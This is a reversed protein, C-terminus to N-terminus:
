RSRAAKTEECFMKYEAIALKWENWYKEEVHEQYLKRASDINAKLERKKQARAHCDHELHKEVHKTKYEEIHNDYYRLRARTQSINSRLKHAGEADHDKKAQEYALTYGELKQEYFSRPKSLNCKIESKHWNDRDKALNEAPTLLQLNSLDYDELTDHRNNIHDVVMGEPVEGYHWAWMLRHLGLSRLKYTYGFASSKKAIKIRKGNEDADYVDHVFYGSNNVNPIEEYEGKFVHGDTTVETIGNEMLEEKTLKRAYM